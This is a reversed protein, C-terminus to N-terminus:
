SACNRYLFVSDIYVSKNKKKEFKATKVRSDFDCYVNACFPSQKITMSEPCEFQAHKTSDTFFEYGRTDM